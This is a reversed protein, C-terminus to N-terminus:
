LRRERWAVFAAREEETMRRGIVENLYKEALAKRERRTLGDNGRGTVIERLRTFVKM